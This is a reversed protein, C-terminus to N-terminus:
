TNYEHKKSFRQTEINDIIDALSKESKLLNYNGLVSAYIPHNSGIGSYQFIAKEIGNIQIYDQIEISTLDNKNTYCYGAAIGVSIHAPYIGHKLCLEAAGMLRDGASLKRKPDVAVRETTIGLLKNGFRYLLEQSYEFLQEFSENHEHAIAAASEKLACLSIYKISPQKVADALYAFGQLQGIFSSIAHSMNYMYLKRHIYYGFPSYPCMNKLFPVDGKITDQDVPLENYDEVVVRLSVGDKLEDTMLPVNRGICTEVMGVYDKLNTKEVQDLHNEVLQLLYENAKIMNECVIINLTNFNGDHWRKRLGAAVNHAILPLINKGVSTAMIDCESIEQVVRETNQAYVGRVNKVVVEWQDEDRVFRLPYCKEQNIEDILQENVDIFVVEYASESFLQAIFGRGISGAGYMVAKKM